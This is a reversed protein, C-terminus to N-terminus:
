ATRFPLGRSNPMTGCTSNKLCNSTTGLALYSAPTGHIAQQFYPRFGFHIGVFSDPADRNSSAVTMGEHNM